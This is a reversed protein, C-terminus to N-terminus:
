TRGPEVSGDTAEAEERVVTIRQGMRITGNWIRGVAMRGVYDNASLNTVLLQLPHDPQYLRRRPTNRGASDLLPRLDTGPTDLDLTATGARANTYLVPFDISSTARRPRHVARLDRGAGGGSPRRLPRDQQDGRGGAPPPGDGQRARLADAAAAGRRCGGAAPDLRGDAADARGRWRLRRPRAHRRHEAPPRWARDRDAQGPDHHGERARPRGLGHGARRAARQGPLRGIQRLMADVLTTKGHDVHAVIALNRLDDRVVSGAAPAHPVVPAPSSM